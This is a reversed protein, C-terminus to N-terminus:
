TQDKRLQVPATAGLPLCRLQMVAALAAPIVSEPIRSEHLAYFIDVVEEVAEASGGDYKNRLTELRNARSTSM